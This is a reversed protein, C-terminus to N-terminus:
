RTVEPDPPSEPRDIGTPDTLHLATISVRVRADAGRNPYAESVSVLRLNPCDRLAAVAANVERPTGMLRLNM